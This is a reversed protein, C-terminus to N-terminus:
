SLCVYLNLSKDTPSPLTLRILGAPTLIITLVTEVNFTVQAPLNLPSMISSPFTVIDSPLQSSAVSVHGDELPQRMAELAARQYEPLEDLSLVGGHALSIEGPRAKTGGGVLAVASVTHHPARFPRELRLGEGAHLTGAASHAASGSQMAQLVQGSAM